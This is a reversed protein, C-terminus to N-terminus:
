AIHYPFSAILSLDWIAFEKEVLPIIWLELDIYLPTNRHFRIPKNKIFIISIRGLINIQHFLMTELCISRNDTEICGGFVPERIDRPWRGFIPFSSTAEDEWLCENVFLIFGPCRDKTVRTIQKGLGVKTFEFPSPVLSSDRSGKETASSCTAASRNVVVLTQHYCM